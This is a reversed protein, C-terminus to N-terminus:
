LLPKLGEWEVSWSGDQPFGPNEREEGGAWGAAMMAVATLLGGNGPLYAWLGPRQYNHGNPLYTNKTADTLLFDVALEPEGLRAATMACMPFDWGWASEWDWCEKVKLLTNRMIEKDILSGPLLGLAGLMSPHDHNKDTFTGPCNEHALYVGNEQRPRVMHSAVKTWAPNAPQDLREAWQVAIELGFKWYELEYPPNLSENMAHNEQAPILPPGLVYAEREGDWYTYSVMFDAAAFVIDKYHELVSREPRALYCMEALAMPHPQQWILGPAVPSPTQRGNYGVMKPWRAGAYGQSRALECAEPLITLYWDMSRRLLDARDWLPFHAAHWWHMELHMKGFWSNYMYGTEQPPMSGGSHVACLFQSLVVRRELEAARPDTSGSLDMAAGNNWFEEWHHSSTRLVVEAPQPEPERAAFAISCSWCGTDQVVEPLLTFEHPGTQELRGADWIWKVAYEDEDLKRKLSASAMSAETLETHHRSDQKWDPFVSKSWSRHTMDPSPFVLFLQLRGERILGSHVRIAICDRQPDCATEVRVEAGQVTFESHLVGTWLNMEQRVPVADAVGAAEGDERLLRFAIRGLQLRHPNQRLWHYAEEKDEPKMPYLVKRGYTEFAQYTIDQDGFVQHGGTYHWGWNSQTGLPIEYADPFTQLGTFDASFAFEGNGVSLPSRPELQTLVPHNRTVVSKRDM